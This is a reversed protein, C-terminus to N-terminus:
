CVFNGFKKRKKKEVYDRAEVDPLSKQTIPYEGGALESQTKGGSIPPM